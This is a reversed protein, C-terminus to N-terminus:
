FDETTGEEINWTEIRQPCDTKTINCFGCESASPVQGAPSHSAVRGVLQALKEVFQPTIADAPIEVLHDPYAVVGTFATYQHQHMAKPVAYMYLMVQAHHSPSPQGTKVDIVVGHGDRVAVLDPKGGLTASKGRLSFANQNETSVMFCQNEWQSRM